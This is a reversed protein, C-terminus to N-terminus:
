TGNDFNQRSIQTDAVWNPDSHVTRPLGSKNQVQATNVLVQSRALELILIDSCGSVQEM